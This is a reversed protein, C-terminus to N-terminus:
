SSCWLGTSPWAAKTQILRAMHGVNTLGEIECTRLKIGFVM